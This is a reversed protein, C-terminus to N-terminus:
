IQGKLMSKKPFVWFDTAALNPSYHPQALGVTCKNAMFQMVSLAHHAHLKTMISSNIAPCINLGKETHLKM